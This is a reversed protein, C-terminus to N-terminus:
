DFIIEKLKEKNKLLEKALNNADEIYKYDDTEFILKGLELMRQRDEAENLDSFVSNDSTEYLVIKKINVKGNRERKILSEKWKLNHEPVIEKM